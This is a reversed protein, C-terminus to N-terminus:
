GFGIPIFPAFPCQPEKNALCVERIKAVLEDFDYPKPLCALAGFDIGKQVEELAGHGTIMIVPVEPNMAKLVKLVELGDMFEMKLDLIVLDFRQNRFREIAEAGSLAPTANINRRHLRKSLVSVFGEEDDVLLLEIPTDNM